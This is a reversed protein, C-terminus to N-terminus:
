YFPYWPSLVGNSFMAKWNMGSIIELCLILYLIPCFFASAYHLHKRTWKWQQTYLIGSNNSWLLLMFIYFICHFLKSFNICKNVYSSCIILGLKRILHNKKWQRSLFELDQTWSNTNMPLSLHLGSGARVACCWDPSNFVSHQLNARGYSSQVWTLQWSEM